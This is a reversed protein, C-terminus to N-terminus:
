TWIDASVDQSATLTLCFCASPAVACSSVQAKNTHSSPLPFGKSFPDRTVPTFTCPLLHSLFDPYSLQEGTRATFRSRQSDTLTARPFLVWIWNSKYESSKINLCKESLWMCFDKKSHPFLGQAEGLPLASVQSVCGGRVAKTADTLQACYCVNHHLPSGYLLLGHPHEEKCDWCYGCSELWCHLEMPKPYLQPRSLQVWGELLLNVDRNPIELCQLPLLTCPSKSNLTQCTSHSASALPIEEKPQNQRQPKRFSKAHRRASSAWADSDQVALTADGWKPQRRLLRQFPQLSKPLVQECWSADQSLIENRLWVTNLCSMGVDDSRYGKKARLIFIGPLLTVSSHMLVSFLTWHIRVWWQLVNEMWNFSFLAYQQRSKHRIPNTKEAICIADSVDM